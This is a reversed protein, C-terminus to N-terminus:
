GGDIFRPKNKAHAQRHIFELVREDAAPVPLIALMERRSRIRRGKRIM